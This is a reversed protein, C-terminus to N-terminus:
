WIPGRLTIGANGFKGRNDAANLLSIFQGVFASEKAAEGTDKLFEAAYLLCTHLYLNPSKTLLWNTPDVSTLPPITRYYTLEIDNSSLPLATLDSGVIMYHCSLGAARDPYYDDAADETIYELPRRISAKEVVRKAEIYTGPITCVNTAPTLSVITEMERVRLNLNFYAEALAIFDASFPQLDARDMYWDQIATQLESFTSITM